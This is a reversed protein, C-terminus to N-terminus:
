GGGVISLIELNDNGKLLTDEWELKKIIKYNYEVIVADPKLGKNIIYNMVTGGSIEESEGNVSIKM